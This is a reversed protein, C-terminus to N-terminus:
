WWFNGTHSLWWVTLFVAILALTSARIRGSFMHRPWRRQGDEGGKGLINLVFKM